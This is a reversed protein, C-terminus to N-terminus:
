TITTHTGAVPGEGLDGQPHVDQGEGDGQSDNHEAVGALDEQGRQLLIHNIFGLKVAHQVPGM